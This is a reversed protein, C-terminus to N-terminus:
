GTSPKHLLLKQFLKEAEFRFAHIDANNYIVFDIMEHVDKFNPQYHLRKEAENLTLNSRKRARELQQHKDAQVWIVYDLYDPRGDSLLLAAEYLFVKEGAEEAQKMQLAVQKRVVPHVLANLEQVRGSNFAKEALYARNLSGDESYSAAGFTKSIAEKLPPYEKMLQKAFDDAYLVHAGLERWVSCFLSKGSAM